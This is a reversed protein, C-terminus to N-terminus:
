KAVEMITKYTLEPNPLGGGHYTVGVVPVRGSVAREVEHVMQGLNIEPVVFAKVRAALEKIKAEPFPWATILRFM